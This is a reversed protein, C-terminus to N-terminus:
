EGVFIQTVYLTGDRAQAVGVGTHTVKRLLINKRHGKSKMWGSFIQKAPDSYGKVQAINEACLRYRIGAAKMRKDLGGAEPDVHSFFKRKVMNRSHARALEALDERWKLSPLRRKQRERNVATFIAREIRVLKPERADLSCSLGSALVFALGVAWGFRRPFRSDERAGVVAKSQYVRVSKKAGCSAGDM